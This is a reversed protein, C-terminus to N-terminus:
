EIVEDAEALMAPPFTLGLATATRLNLVLNFKASGELPIEGPRQGKLIKDVFDVSRRRLTAFDPGYAILGGELAFERFMFIAALGTSRALDALRAKDRFILPSSLLVVGEAGSTKMEAFIAALDPGFAFVRTGVGLKAAARQTAKLQAPPTAPDWLVAIGSLSPLAQGLYQVWKGALTPQDLFVGTVNGGPRSFTAAYGEEVPDTELDFAVIPITQTFARAARLSEPSVAFILDVKQSAIDASAESLRGIRRQIVLSRGEVHGRAALGDQLEQLVPVEAPSLFLLVPRIGGAPQQSRAPGACLVSAAGILVDRRRM